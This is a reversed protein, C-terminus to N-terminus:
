LAYVTALITDADACAGPATTYIVEHIGPGLLSPDLQNSSVAGSWTGGPPVATLTVTGATTCLLDVPDIQAPTFPLYTLTIDVLTDCELGTGPLIEQGTPNAEDYTTGNIVIGYGDGECG